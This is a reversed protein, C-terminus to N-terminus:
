GTSIEMETETESTFFAGRCTTSGNKSLVLTVLNPLNKGKPHYNVTSVKKFYPVLPLFEKREDGVTLVVRM